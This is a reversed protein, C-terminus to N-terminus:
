SSDLFSLDDRRLPKTFLTCTYLLIRQTVAGSKVLTIDKRFGLIVICTILMKNKSIM